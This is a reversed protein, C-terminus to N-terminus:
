QQVVVPLVVLDPTVQQRAMRIANRVSNRYSADVMQWTQSNNNWVGSESQDMTQYVLATRGIRLIDVEKEVGNLTLTQQYSEIKKGYDIEILYAELVQRYKESISVDARNLANRLFVIRDKREQLSFPLDQDIFVELSDVMNLMLPMIQREILTVRDISRNLRSLEEEQSNIQQQLQANYVQLGENVKLQDRYALYQSRADDTLQDILQQSRQTDAIIEDMQDYVRNLESESEASASFAVCCFLVSAIFRM